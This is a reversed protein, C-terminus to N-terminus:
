LLSGSGIGTGGELIEVASNVALKEVAEPAVFFISVIQDEGPEMRETHLHLVVMHLTSDPPFRANAKYGDFIPRCRGGAEATLLTLRAPIEGSNSM